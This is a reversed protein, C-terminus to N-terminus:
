RAASRRGQFGGCECGRPDACWGAGDTGTTHLDRAHDCMVCEEVGREPDGTLPPLSVAIGPSTAGYGRDPM